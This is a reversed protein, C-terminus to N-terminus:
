ADFSCRDAFNDAVHCAYLGNVETLTCGVANFYAIFVDFGVRREYGGKYWVGWDYSYLRRKEHSNLPGTDAPELEELPLHSAPTQM